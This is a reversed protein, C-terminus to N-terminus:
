LIIMNIELLKVMEFIINWYVLRKCLHFFLMEFGTKVVFLVSLWVFIDNFLFKLWFTVGFSFFSPNNKILNDIKNDAFYLTSSQDSLVKKRKSFLELCCKWNFITSCSFKHLFFSLLNGMKEYKRSQLSIKTFLMLFYFFILREVM